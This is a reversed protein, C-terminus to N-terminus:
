INKKNVSIPLDVQICIINEKSIKNRLCINLSHHPSLNKKM